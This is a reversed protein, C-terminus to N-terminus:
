VVKFPGDVVLFVDEPVDTVRAWCYYTGASQPADVLLKLLRDATTAGQVNVDPAVWSAPPTSGSQSLGVLFTAGTIDSGDQATVTGGVYEKEGATVYITANRTM